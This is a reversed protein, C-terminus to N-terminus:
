GKNRVWRMALEQSIVRDVIPLYKCSGIKCQTLLPNLVNPNYMEGTMMTEPSSFWDCYPPNNFLSILIPANWDLSFYWKNAQKLKLLRSMAGSYIRKITALHEPLFLPTRSLTKRITPVGNQNRLFALEPYLIETCAKTLKGGSKFKPPLLYISRTMEKTAFPLYLPNKYRMGENCTQFIRLLHDIQIGKPYNKVELLNDSVIEHLNALFETDSFNLLKPHFDLLWKMKVFFTSDIMKRSSPFLAKGRLYYSGRFAEGGPVGCYKVINYDNLPSQIESAFETCSSFFGHYADHELIIDQAKSLLQEKSISTKRREYLEIGLKESAKKAFVVDISDPIGMVQTKFPIGLSHCAAIILRSDEGATFDCIAPSRGACDHYSSISKKLLATWQDVCDSFSNQWPTENQPSWYQEFSLKMDESCYLIQNPNLKKIGKFRSYFRWVTGIHAFQSFGFPDIESNLYKALVLEHSSLRIGKESLSYYVPITTNFDSAVILRKKFSDYAIIAYSGDVDSVITKAPNSFFSSLFETEKKPSNLKVLPTGMIIIWSMKGEDNISIDRIIKKYGFTTISILGKTISFFENRKDIPVVDKLIDDIKNKGVESSTFDNQNNECFFYSM